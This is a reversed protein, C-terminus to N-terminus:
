SPLDNIKKEVIELWGDKVTLKYYGESLNIYFTYKLGTVKGKSDIVAEYFCSTKDNCGEEWAWNNFHKDFWNYSKTGSADIIYIGNKISNDDCHVEVVWIANSHYYQSCKAYNGSFLESAPTPKPISENSLNLTISRGSCGILTGLVVSLLTKLLFNENM